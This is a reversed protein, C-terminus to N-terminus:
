YIEVLPVQVPDWMLYGFFSQLHFFSVCHTCLQMLTQLTLQATQQQEQHNIIFKEKLYTLVASSGLLKVLVTDNTTFSPRNLESGAIAETTTIGTFSGGTM